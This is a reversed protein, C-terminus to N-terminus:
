SPIEQLLRLRGDDHEVDGHFGPDVTDFREPADLLEIDLQSIAPNPTWPGPDLTYLGM